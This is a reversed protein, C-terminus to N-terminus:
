LFIISRTDALIEFFFFFSILNEIIECIEGNISREDAWKWEGRLLSRTMLDLVIRATQGLTLPHFARDLYRLITKSIDAAASVRHRTEPKPDFDRARGNISSRLASVPSAHLEDFARYYLLMIGPLVAYRLTSANVSDRAM